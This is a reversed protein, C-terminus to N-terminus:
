PITRAAIEVPVTVGDRNTIETELRLDDEGLLRDIIDAESIFSSLMLHQADEPAVGILRCLSTNVTVAQMGICVAVGEDLVDLLSTLRKAEKAAQRIRRLMASVALSAAVILFFALAASAAILAMSVTSGGTIGAAEAPSGVVLGLVLACIAALWHRRASAHAADRGHDRTSRPTSCVPLRM